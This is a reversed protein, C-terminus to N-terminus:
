IYKTKVFARFLVGVFGNQQRISLFFVCTAIYLKVNKPILGM